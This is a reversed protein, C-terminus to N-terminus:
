NWFPVKKFLFPVKKLFRRIIVLKFVNWFPVKKFLFPGKKLFRRYFPIMQGQFQNKKPANVSTLVLGWKSFFRPIMKFFFPVSESTGFDQRSEYIYIYIYICIAQSICIHYIYSHYIYIYIYIYIHMNYYIM